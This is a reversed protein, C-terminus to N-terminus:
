SCHRGIAAALAATEAETTDWRCVFRALEHGRRYFLFGDAALADLAAPAMTVFLENAEVPALLRAGAVARIDAALRAAAANAQRALRLWLDDEVYALLQASAFRMKSWVLGARRLHFSLDRAVEPNFVVVADSLLGGNKTAGFSMLDVGARWTAQAPTCGLTALANGFRAGDMHVALGHERAIRGIAAIEDLRYVAGLDSAQV